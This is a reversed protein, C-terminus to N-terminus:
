IVFKSELIQASKHLMSMYSTTDSFLIWSLIYVLNVNWGTSTSIDKALVEKYSDM